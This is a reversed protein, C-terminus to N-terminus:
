FVGGFLGSDGKESSEFISSGLSCVRRRMASGPAEGGSGRTWFRVNVYSYFRILSVDLSSLNKVEM